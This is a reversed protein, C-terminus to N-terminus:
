AMNKNRGNETTDPAQCANLHIKLVISKRLFRGIYHRIRVVKSSKTHVFMHGHRWTFIYQNRLPLINRERMVEGFIVKKSYKPQKQFLEALYKWLSLLFNINKHSHTLNLEPDSFHWMDYTASYNMMTWNFSAHWRPKSSISPSAINIGYPPILRYYMYITSM